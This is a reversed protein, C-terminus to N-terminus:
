GYIRISTFLTFALLFVGVAWCVPSWFVLGRKNFPDSRYPQEFLRSSQEPIQIMQQIIERRQEISLEHSSATVGTVLRHFETEDRNDGYPYLAFGLGFLGSGILGTTLIWVWPPAKKVAGITWIAAKTLLITVVGVLVGITLYPGIAQVIPPIEIAQQM